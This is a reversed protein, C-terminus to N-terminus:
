KANMKLNAWDVDVDLNDVKAKQVANVFMKLRRQGFRELLESWTIPTSRDVRVTPRCLNYHSKSKLHKNTGCPEHKGEIYKQNMWKEKMWKSFGNSDQSLKHRKRHTSKRAEYPRSSFRPVIFMSKYASHSKYRENAEKRAEKYASSSKDM